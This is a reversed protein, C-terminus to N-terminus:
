LICHSGNDWSMAWVAARKKKNRFLEGREGRREREREGLEAYTRVQNETMATINLPSTALEQNVVGAELIVVNDRYSVCPTMWANLVCCVCVCVCVCVVRYVCVCVCVHVCVCVCVCVCACVCVCVCVCVCACVCVCVCVCMCM